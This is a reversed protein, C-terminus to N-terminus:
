KYYVNTKINKKKKINILISRSDKGRADRAGMRNERQHSGAGDVSCSFIIRWPKIISFAANHVSRAIGGAKGVGDLALSFISIGREYRSWTGPISFRALMYQMSKHDPSRPFCVRSM